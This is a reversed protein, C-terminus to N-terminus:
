FISMTPDVKNLLQQRTVRARYKLESPNEHMHPDAPNIGAAEFYNAARRVFQSKSENKALSKELALSILESRYTGFSTGGPVIFLEQDRRLLRAPPEAGVSVGVLETQNHESVMRTTRTVGHSFRHRNGAQQYAAIETLATDRANASTLYIVITDFRSRQSPAAVKANSLGPHAAPRLVMQTLVHNMVDIAQMPKTHLYVREVSKVRNRRFHYFTRSLARCLTADRQARQSLRLFNQRTLQTFGSPARTAHFNLALYKGLQDRRNNVSCQIEPLQPMAVVRTLFAIMEPTGIGVSKALRAYLKYVSVNDASYTGDIHSKRHSWVLDLFQQLDHSIASQRQEINAIRQKVSVM